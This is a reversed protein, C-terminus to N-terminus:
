HSAPSNRMNGTERLLSQSSKELVLPYLAVKDPALEKVRDYVASSAYIYEAEQLARDLSATDQLGAEISEIQTIGAEKVRQAMWQGGQQGLCIFAVKSGPVLKAIELLLTFDVVAGITLLPMNHKNFLPKWEEAHNLTTVVIDHHAIQEEFWNPNEAADEIFLTTVHGNTFREIERRYFAHDHERCEVFLLRLKAPVPRHALQVYAYSAAALEHLNLGQERADLYLPNILAHMRMRSERLRDVAPSNLVQTGRGKQMSVIGEDRLHTYVLNVTNRNVKLMDALESAPPLFEGPQITGLGILWKLQEKIQTNLSFTYTPDAQIFIEQDM